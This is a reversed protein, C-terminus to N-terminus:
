ALRCRRSVVERFLYRRTFWMTLWWPPLSPPPHPGAECCCLPLSPSLPLHWPVWLMPPHPQVCSDQAAPRAGPLTLWGSGCWSHRAETQVVTVAWAQATCPYSRREWCAPLHRGDCKSGQAGKGRMCAARNWQRV